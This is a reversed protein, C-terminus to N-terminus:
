LIKVKAEGATKLAEKTREEFHTLMSGHRAVFRRAEHVDGKKSAPPLLKQKLSKEQPVL